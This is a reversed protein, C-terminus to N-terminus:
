KVLLEELDKKAKFLELYKNKLANYKSKEGLYM